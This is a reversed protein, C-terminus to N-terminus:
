GTADDESADDESVTGACDCRYERALAFDLGTQKGTRLEDVAIDYLGQYSPRDRRFFMGSVRERDLWRQLEADPKWGPRDKIAKKILAIAKTPHKLFCHRCNGEVSDEDLNLNFPQSRWWKNVDSKTIKDEVLPVIWENFGRGGLRRPEDYRIGIARFFKKYGLSHMYREITKIKLNSTCMRTLLTPLIMNNMGKVATRYNWYYTLMKEFPEGNRAATEYSVVKFAREQGRQRCASITGNPKRYDELNFEDDWELWTIPHWRTEIEHLFELTEECEEGTNQFSAIVGDPLRGNHADLIHHFLFGSTRGGSVGIQAPRLDNDIYYYNSM